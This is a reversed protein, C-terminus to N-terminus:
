RFFEKRFADPEPHGSGSVFQPTSLINSAL